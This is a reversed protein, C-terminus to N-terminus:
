TFVDHFYRTRTVFSAAEIKNDDWVTRPTTIDGMGFGQFPHMTWGALLPKSCIISNFLVVPLPPFKRALAHASVALCNYDELTDHIRVYPKSWPGRNKDLAGKANQLRWLRAWGRKHLLFIYPQLHTTVSAHPSDCWNKEDTGENSHTSWKCVQQRYCLSPRRSSTLPKVFFYRRRLHVETPRRPLAVVNDISIYSAAYWRTSM